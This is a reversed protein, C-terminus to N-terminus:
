SSPEPTHIFIEKKKLIKLYFHYIILIPTPFPSLIENHNHIHALDNSPSLHAELGSKDSRLPSHHYCTAQRKQANNEEDTLHPLKLQQLFLYDKNTHQATGYSDLTNRHSVTASFLSKLNYSTRLLAERVYLQFVKQAYTFKEQSPAPPM